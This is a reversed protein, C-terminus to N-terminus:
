IIKLSSFWCLELGYAHLPCRLSGRGLSFHGNGGETSLRIPTATFWNQLVAPRGHQGCAQKAPILLLPDRIGLQQVNSHQFIRVPFVCCNVGEEFIGQLIICRLSCRVLHETNNEHHVDVEVCCKTNRYQSTVLLAWEPINGNVAWTSTLLAEENWSGQTETLQKQERLCECDTTKM